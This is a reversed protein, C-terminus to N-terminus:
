ARRGNDYPGHDEGQSAKIDELHGITGDATGVLANHGLSQTAALDRQGRLEENWDDLIRQQEPDSAAQAELEVFAQRDSANTM